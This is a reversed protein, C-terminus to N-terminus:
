VSITAASTRLIANNNDRLPRKIVTSHGTTPASTNILKVQSKGNVVSAVPPPPPPTVMSSSVIVPPTGSLPKRPAREVVPPTIVDDKIEDKKQKKKNPTVSMYDAGACVGKKESGVGSMSRSADEDDEDDVDRDRVEVETKISFEDKVCIMGRKKKQATSYVEVPPKIDIEEDKEILNTRYMTDRDGRNKHM